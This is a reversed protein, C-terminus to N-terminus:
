TTPTSSAPVPRTKLFTSLGHLMKGIRQCELLAENTRPDDGYKLGISLMLQTQLEANSGRAILVFQRFDRRTGRASGEAINSAISVACRRMQSSLGYMEHKPFDSTLQYICMALDMSRRWVELDRFSKAM